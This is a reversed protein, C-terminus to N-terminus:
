ILIELYSNTRMDFNLSSINRYYHFYTNIKKYMHYNTIYLKNYMYNYWKSM